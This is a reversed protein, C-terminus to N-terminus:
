MPGPDAMSWMTSGTKSWSQKQWAAETPFDTSTYYETIIVMLGTLVLGLAAALYVRMVLMGGAVETGDLNLTMGSM